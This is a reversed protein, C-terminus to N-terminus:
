KCSLNIKLPQNEEYADSTQNTISVNKANEGNSSVIHFVLINLIVTITTVAKM